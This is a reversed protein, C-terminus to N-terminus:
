GPKKKLSARLGSLMRSLEDAQSCLEDFQERNIFGQRNAIHSQSVVEMLSGYAIEVFRAFDANSSRGSGEAVNSSVSVAARRLQSVLGFREDSPFNASVAYVRDAFDIAKQWVTLKEFRFV